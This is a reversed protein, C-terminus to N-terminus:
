FTATWTEASAFASHTPAYDDVFDFAHVGQAGLCVVDPGDVGRM